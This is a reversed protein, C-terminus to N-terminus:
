EDQERSFWENARGLVREILEASLGTYHRPNFTDRIEESTLGEWGAGNALLREQLSEGCTRAAQAVDYVVGYASQKGILEGLRLMLRETGLETAMDGSNRAMAEDNVALGGVIERAFGAAALTYHAVDSVTVWETRLERSDREHEVVMAQLAIGVQATALRTLVIVQECEEPNRKHPMTSSGVKGHHWRQQLEGLEPRSMTRVEDAIRGLTACMAAVVFIYEAVRDRSAHWAADPTNLGLRAAFRDLLELGGQGFAAMSGVGGFLEVVLVRPRIAHIRELARLLEDIWGAVKLGFTIPLAPQAHTRGPMVTYVHERALTTLPRLIGLLERECAALVERMELTQATDQIDQTTAGLHILEGTDAPCRQQLARLLGVLSHATRRTEERVWDLDLLEVKAAAAIAAAAEGPMMGVDAQSLALAAEVDLWRQLRCEDCFIRRSEDTAYMHGHFRSDIIHGREHAHCVANAADRHAKHSDL